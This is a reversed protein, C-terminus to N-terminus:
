GRNHGPETEVSMGWLVDLNTSITGSTWRWPFEIGKAALTIAPSVTSSPGYPNLRRLYLGALAHSLAASARSGEDRVRFCWPVFLRADSLGGGALFRCLSLVLLSM